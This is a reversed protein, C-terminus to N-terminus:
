SAETWLASKRHGTKPTVLWHYSHPGNPVRQFVMDGSKEFLQLINSEEITEPHLRIGVIGYGNNPPTPGTPGRKDIELKM